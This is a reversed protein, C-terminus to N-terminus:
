PAVFDLQIRYPLDLEETYAWGGGIDISGNSVLLYYVEGKNLYFAFNGVGLLPNQLISNPLNNFGSDYMMVKSEEQFPLYDMDNAFVIGFNALMVSASTSNSILYYGTEPAIFKYFDQAILYGNADKILDCIGNQNCNEYPLEYNGIIAFGQNSRNTIVPGIGPDGLNQATGFTDNTTAGSNEDESYENLLQNNNGSALNVILEDSIAIIEQSSDLAIVIFYYNTDLSLATTGSDTTSSGSFYGWTSSDNPVIDPTASQFLVYSVADTYEQWHFIVTGTDNDQAAIRLNNITGLQKTPQDPISAALREIELPSLYRNYIRFDDFLGNYNESGGDSGIFLSILNDDQPLLVDGNILGHTADQGNVYGIVAHTDYIAYNNITIAIHTWENDTLEQNFWPAGLGSDNVYPELTGNNINLYLEDQRIVNHGITNVQHYSEHLSISRINNTEGISFLNAGTSEGLKKVWFSITIENKLDLQMSKVQAVDGISTDLAKGIIGSGFSENRNEGNNAFGSSDLINESEFEYHALLGEGLLLDIKSDSINMPIWESFPPTVESLAIIQGSEDFAAIIMTIVDSHEVLHFPEISRFGTTHFSSDSHWAYASDNFPDYPNFASNPSYFSVYYSAGPFSDWRYLFDTEDKAVVELGTITGLESYISPSFSMAQTVAINVPQSEAGLYNVSSIYIETVNGSPTFTFSTAGDSGIANEFDGASIPLFNQDYLFYGLVNSNDTWNVTISGDLTKVATPNIPQYQPILDQVINAGTDATDEGLAKISSIEGDSNVSVLYSALPASLLWDGIMLVMDAGSMIGIAANKFAKLAAGSLGTLKSLLGTNTVGDVGTNTALDQLTELVTPGFDFIAEELAALLYSPDAENISNTVATNVNTKHYLMKDAPMSQVIPVILAGSLGGTTASTFATVFKVTLSLINYKIAMDDASAVLPDYAENSGRSFYIIYQKNVNNAGELSGYTTIEDIQDLFGQRGEVPLGVTNLAVGAHADVVTAAYYHLNPNKFNLDSGDDAISLYPPNGQNSITNIDYRHALRNAPLATLENAIQAALIYVEEDESWLTGATLHDQIKTKLNSFESSNTRINSVLDLREQASRLFLVPSMQVLSRATTEVSLEPRAEFAQDTINLLVINGDADEAAIPEVGGSFSLVSTEVTATQALTSVTVVLEDPIDGALVIPLSSPPPDSVSVTPTSQDDSTTEEPPNKNGSSGGGCSALLLVSLIVSFSYLHSRLVRM